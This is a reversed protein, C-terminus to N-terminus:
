KGEEKPKAGRSRKPGGYFDEVTISDNSVGGYNSDENLKRRKKETDRQTSPNGNAKRKQGAADKRQM